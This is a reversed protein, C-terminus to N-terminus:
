YKRCDKKYHGYKKCNHCKRNKVNYKKKEKDQLEEPENNMVFREAREWNIIIKIIEELTEPEKFIIQQKIEKGKIGRIFTINIIFEPLTDGGFKKILGKFKYAYTEISEDKEQKLNIWENYWSYKREDTIFKEKFKEEFTKWNNKWEEIEEEEEFWYEAEEELYIRIIALKRQNSWNNITGARNFEKLWDIPDEKDKGYFKRPTTYNYEGLGTEILAEAFDKIDILGEKGIEKIEEELNEQSKLEKEKSNEKSSESDEIYDKQIERWAEQQQLFKSRKEEFSEENVTETESKGKDIDIEMIDENKDDTEEESTTLIEKSSESSLRETERWENFM